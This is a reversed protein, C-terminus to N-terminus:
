HERDGDEPKDPDRLIAAGEWIEGLCEDLSTTEFDLFVFKRRM